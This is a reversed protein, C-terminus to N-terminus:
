KPVRRTSILQEVNHKPTIQPDGSVWGEIDWRTNAYHTLNTGPNYRAAGGITVVPIYTKSANAKDVFGNECFARIWIKGSRYLRVHFWVVLTADTGVPGRYHCEVMEPGSVWTRFPAAALLSTLTVTGLAGCQVSATPGASVIDASTLAAGGTPTGATIQIAQTGGAAPINVHGSVVVHKISGDNWQRKVVIQATGQDVALATGAPLAAKAFAYGITYPLDTGGIASTVQFSATLPPPPPTIRVTFANSTTKAM